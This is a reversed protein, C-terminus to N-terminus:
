AQSPADEAARQSMRVSLSSAAVTTTVHSYRVFDDECGLRGACEGVNRPGERPEM